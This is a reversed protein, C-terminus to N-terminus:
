VTLVSNSEVNTGSNWIVSKPDVSCVVVQNIIVFIFVVPETFEMFLVLLKWYFACLFLVM